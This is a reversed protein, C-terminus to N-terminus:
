PDYGTDFAYTYVRWDVTLPSDDTKIFKLAYLPMSATSLM